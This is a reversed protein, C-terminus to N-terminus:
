GHEAGVTPPSTSIMSIAYNYIYYHYNNNKLIIKIQLYILIINKIKFFIIKSIM